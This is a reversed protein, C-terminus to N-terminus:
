FAGRDTVFALLDDVARGSLKNSEILQRVRKRLLIRREANLPKSYMVDLYLLDDIVDDKTQVQELVNPMVKSLRKLKDERSEKYDAEDLEKFRTSYDPIVYLKTTNPRNLKYTHSMLMFGLPKSLLTPYTFM